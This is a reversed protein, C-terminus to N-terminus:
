PWVQQNYQNYFRVTTDLDPLDHHEAHFGNSFEVYTIAVGNWNTDQTVLIPTGVILHRASALALAATYTSPALNDLGGKGTMDPALPTFSFFSGTAPCYLHNEQIAPGSLGTDSTTCISVQPAIRQATAIAPVILMCLLVAIPLLMRQLFLKVM